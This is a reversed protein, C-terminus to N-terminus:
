TVITDQLKSNDDVKAGDWVVVRSLSVNNGIQAGSGICVWDDFHVNSGVQTHKGRFIPKNSKMETSRLLESHLQLYDAPTGM